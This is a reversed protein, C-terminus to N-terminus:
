PTPARPATTWVPRATGVLGRVPVPGYYRSDYSLRTYPSWLWAASDALVYRGAAFPTVPRGHSDRREARSNALPRGNVRIGDPGVEVTDGGLAAVVKLLPEAGRPCGFTGRMLYGRARAAAALSDPLCWVALDGRALAARRAAPGATDAVRAVRYLGLPVSATHNVVLGLSRWTLALLGAAAGAAALRTVLARVDAPGARFRRHMARRSPSTADRCGPAPLPGNPVADSALM